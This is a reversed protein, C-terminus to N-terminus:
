IGIGKFWLLFGLVLHITALIFTLFAFFKHIKFVPKKYVHMAIGFSLTAILSLYTAFGLWVALPINFLM